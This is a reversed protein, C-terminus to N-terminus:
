QWNNEGGSWNSFVFQVSTGQQVNGSEKSLWALCNTGKASMLDGSGSTSPVSLYWIGARQEANARYFFQRGVKKKLSTEIVGELPRRCITKYGSYKRLCALIYMELGVYVSVPNGPLGFMIKGSDNNTAFSFPKGPKQAVTRFHFHFGLEEMIMPVYDHTGMSVGGATILVDSVELAQEAANRLSVPDDASHFLQVSAFGIEDLFSAMLLQNANRVQGPKPKHSPSIVESGTTLVSVSPKKYVKIVELGAMAAIGIEISHLHIGSSLVKQGKTIDEAKWCINAAEKPMELVILKGDVIKTVEVIVVRDAGEPVPAGTMIPAAFGEATIPKPNVGAPIEELLEYTDCVGRLAYGDMASRDFPPMSIDSFVDQALIRGSAKQLSIVETTVKPTFELVYELAEKVSIM